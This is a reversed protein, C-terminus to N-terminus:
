PRRDRHQSGSSGSRHPFLRGRDRARPKPVGPREQWIRRQVSRALAHGCLSRPPRSDGGESDVCATTQTRLAGMRAGKRKGEGAILGRRRRRRVADNQAAGLAQRFPSFAGAQIPSHQPLCRGSYAEPAVRCLSRHNLAGDPLCCEELRWLLASIPTEGKRGRKDTRTASAAAAM